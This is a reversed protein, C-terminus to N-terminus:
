SGSSKATARTSRRTSRCRSARGTNFDWIVSDTLGEFHCSACAQWGESSLRDTTAVTTGPPRNFNGRSSFFIEAGVLTREQPSGPAPLNATRIVRIVRDARLDVVSVNRSIANMVYARTGERNIAIGQPNKGTNQASTVPNAPDNLDIYRTTEPGGTLSLDGTPGVNLKVLLDSGAAVAYANGTGSASTFGIAWLNSFFLRKKNPEPTRAGLNANVFKEASADSQNVDARPRPGNVGRLVNVFAQTDVNFRLPGGASAAVNPLFLYNGRIVASQMQNPFASTPDPVGDGTSDIAFGTDQPGVAIRQRPRYDRIANSATRIRLRCVAGQRGTDTAQRGGPRTFAHFSTVFLRSSDRTVALGRPLFVRNRDPDNCVSNRLNVHGILQRGNRSLVTISDQNMNAVFVRRGDPSAVVNWPEAGTTVNRTRRAQYDSPSRNTIQIISVNNSAPNAVYAYRGAPDLAVSAPESGVGVREIVRNTRTYIVSVSNDSPNVSWVYRGNASLAIPSSYTPPPLTQAGATAASVLALAVLVVSSAISRSATLGHKGM